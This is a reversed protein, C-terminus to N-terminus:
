SEKTVVIVPPRNVDIVTVSVEKTATEGFEDKCMVSVSHSGADAYDTQKTESTMWGSISYSTEAEHGVCKVYLEVLEGENVVVPRVTIKPPVIETRCSHCEYYYKHGINFNEFTPLNGNVKYGQAVPITSLCETEGCSYLNVKANDKCFLGTHTISHEAAFNRSGALHTSCQFEEPM